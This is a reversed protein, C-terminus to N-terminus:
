ELAEGEEGERLPDVDSQGKTHNNCNNCICNLKMEKVERSRQRKAAEYHSAANALSQRQM